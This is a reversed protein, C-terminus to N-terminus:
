APMWYAHGSVVSIQMLISGVCTCVSLAWSLLDESVSYKETDSHVKSYIRDSWKFVTPHVIYTCPDISRCILPTMKQKCM